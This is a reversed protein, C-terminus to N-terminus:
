HLDLAGLSSSSSTSSEYGTFGVAHYSGAIGINQIRLLFPDSRTSPHAVDVIRVTTADEPAVVDCASAFLVCGLLILSQMAIQLFHHRVNIVRHVRQTASKVEADVNGETM